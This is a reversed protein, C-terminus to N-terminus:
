LYPDYRRIAAGGFRTYADMVARDALLEIRGLMLAAFVEAVFESHNTAARDSVADAIQDLEGSEGLRRFEAEDQLYSEHLPDFREAGVSLHMALEGLEHVIPHRPDDSSLDHNARALRMATPLDQWAPHEGNIIIEGAQSSLGALYYAIEDPDELENRTFQGKVILRSPMPASNESVLFLGHNCVNAIDLRGKYDVEGVGLKRAFAQAHHIRKYKKFRPRRSRSEARRIIGSRM